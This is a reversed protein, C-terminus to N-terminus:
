KRKRGHSVCLVFDNEKKCEKLKQDSIDLNALQELFLYFGFEFDSRKRLEEVLKMNFYNSVAIEVCTQYAFDKKIFSCIEASGRKMNNKYGSKGTTILYAISDKDIRSNKRTLIKLIRKLCFSYLDSESNLFSDLRSEKIYFEENSKEFFQDAVVVFRNSRALRVVEKFDINEFKATLDVRTSFFADIKGLAINVMKQKTELSAKLFSGGNAQKINLEDLNVDIAKQAFSFHTLIFTSFLFRFM